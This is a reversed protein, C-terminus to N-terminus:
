KLFGSLRTSMFSVIAVAIFVASSSDTVPTTFSCISFSRFSYDVNVLKELADVYCFIIVIRQYFKQISRTSSAHRRVRKPFCFWRVGNGEDISLRLFSVIEARPKGLVNDCTKSIRQRLMWLLIQEGTILFQEDLVHFLFELLFHRLLLPKFCPGFFEPRSKGPFEIFM